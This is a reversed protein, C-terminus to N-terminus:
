DTRSAQLTLGSLENICESINAQVAKETAIRLRTAAVAADSFGATGTSKIVKRWVPGGSKEHLQWAIEMEVNFTLGFLPQDMGMFAISLQYDGDEYVVGDEFIGANRLSEEVTARMVANSVQPTGFADTEAGGDVRIDVSGDHRNVVSVAEADVVMATQQAPTACGALIFGLALLSGLRTVSNTM